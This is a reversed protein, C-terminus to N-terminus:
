TPFSFRRKWNLKDRIQQGKIALKIVVKVLKNKNAVVKNGYLSLSYNVLM